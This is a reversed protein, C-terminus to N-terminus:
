QTVILTMTQNQTAGTKQGNATVKFTYTGGPTSNVTLGACGTTGLTATITVILLLLGLLTQLSRRRKRFLAIGALLGVPLFCLMTNSKTKVASAQEDAGLPNGTDITLQVTASGNAALATTDSSFTCTAATPLGLCGLQLTDAFSQVSAITLTVTNHQGSPMTLTAPNLQMTFQTAQGGSITVAPSTSSTYSADGSYSATITDTASQMVITLTAVGTADVATSGIPNTGNSFTVTGTPTVTSGTWREVAILTVQLPNAADTETATLTTTTPRLQVGQTLTPSVAAFDDADGAYSALLSHNGATLSPVTLTATGTPDLTVTGLQTSGDTFTVTGTAVGVGSDSVVATLMISALTQVPNASSALAVSTLEKAVLTLPTSSSASASGDGAYVAVLTHTGPALTSTTLTAVGSANLVATGIVTGGDTFTVSGTAVVGNSTITAILSLPTGYIAPNASATLAVQTNASVVTQIVTAAASSYSKDGPYAVAITHSGVALSTSQFSAAGTADLAVVGLTTLGDTFTVSGTPILSGVGGLKATFIVNAGANSPNASSVLAASAAQVIQESVAPSTAAAHNTDGSYVATLNHSGFVLSSTTFTATGNANLSVSGLVTAGDQFSISGTLNPSASTVAATLTVPQGVVQPNASTALSATTGAQQVVLVFINSTAPANNADGAYTVTLTHTGVTLTSTSFSFTVSGSPLANQTAIATVGDLLTLAGTPTVGNSSLVGTLNIAIGPNVPSAPGTLTLAATGLSITEVLPASTSTTYNGDGAYVAVMTQSGVALTSLSLTAVGQANLTASSVNAGANLFNVTGTPTGTASSVTATFTTSKGALASPNSSTLVTTTATATIHESLSASTSSAYDTNGAYTAVITNLGAPLTTLSLSANGNADVVVSGLPNAGNSFTLQGTITGDATYGAAMSVKATLQVTAGASAPNLSSTLVTVTPIQLITEVLATSASTANSADGSYTAVIHHTGPALTSTLLTAIGSGSLTGSGLPTNSDSFAVTGTPAPGNTSTVTAAFTVASGVTANANSSGIMTLTTAQQIVESVVNSQAAADTADGAYQASLSHTAASLQTTSFTAVGSANLNASGIATTGDYFTIAGSPTGTAATATASLTVSATVVVPNPSAVLVITAPQKVVQILAPSVSAADSSDGAYSATISHQGLALTSLTCTAISNANLNASCLQVAGDLFTVPGAPSAGGSAITATFTVAANLFSPNLSSTLLVTTPNVSLVQGSLNITAPSNGANSNALVSGLVLTGLTTPAFEVGLNCTADVALVSGANCTTTAPDLAANNLAPAALTLNANGDNALGEIQPASVKGVRLTAYQLSINTASIERIRNHFMDTLFLNGAQDVFLGYPGYLSALNAPGGDGIFQEGDIGALTNIISSTTTVERVRNNGSDAIYLNGAPDLVVSAPANLAAAVAPGGDGAFGSQGTGVVTSIIGLPNVKRIRNNGMDAIYLSNDSSVSLNWPSSLFAATAQIGDQNYGEAGTGAVTSIVRTAANVERIVNNGTDAIFLDNAADFAIGEPLSLKALSATAGDGSYGQVGGTGAVTTIIGADVRRIAHNGTDAFYLNGAGDLALGAPTSIMAQTAPGHDGSFGPTGNGAVTSILGTVADVRRVRNNNSDSLFINGAADTVVATPLFISADIALIGDSAYIWNYNGAVTNMEGPVLVALSGNAEGTLLTSGLLSGETSEIVVAGSRPGPYKPTFVVNVTCQQGATYSVNAACTGGSGLSFDLGAIGQTLAQPAAAVGSGTM